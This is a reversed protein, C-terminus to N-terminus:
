DAAFKNLSSQIIAAGIGPLLFLLLFAIPGSMQGDTVQEVGESFKWMWWISIIPLIILWATPIDAGSENMELKTMVYWYIGYIGFTIITFILVMIPDRKTLSTSTQNSASRAPAGGKLSNGCSTCFEATDNNDAGCKTCFM